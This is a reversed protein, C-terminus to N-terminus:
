KVKEWPEVDGPVLDFMDTIYDYNSEITGVKNQLHKIEYEFQGKTLAIPTKITANNFKTKDFNYGRKVSEEYIKSLYMNIADVPNETKRWRDLQSHKTYGKTKGELVAKALLTERWLAVLRKVDLHKPHISWIRM